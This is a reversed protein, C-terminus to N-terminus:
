MGGECWPSDRGTLPVAKRGYVRPPPERHAPLGNVSPVLLRGCVRCRQHSKVSTTMRRGTREDPVSKRGQRYPAPDFGNHTLRQHLSPLYPLNGEGM